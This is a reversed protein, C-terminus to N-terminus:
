ECTCCYFPHGGPVLALVRCSPPPETTGADGFAPGCAAAYENAACRSVCGSTAGDGTDCRTPDDSICIASGGPATSSVSCELSYRAALCSGAGADRAPFVRDIGCHAPAVADVGADQPTTGTSGGSCGVLSVGGLIVSLAALLRAPFM